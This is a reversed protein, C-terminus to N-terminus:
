NPSRASRAPQEAGALKTMMDGVRLKALRLAGQEVIGAMIDRDTLVGVLARNGAGERMVVLDDVRLDRMRRVAEAVTEHEGIMAVRRGVLENSDM